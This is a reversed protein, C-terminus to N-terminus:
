RPASSRSKSTARRVGRKLLIEFADAAVLQLGVDFTDHGVLDMLLRVAPEPSVSGALIRGFLFALTPRWQPDRSREGFVAALRHGDTEAIQQAALFEQLSLGRRIRSAGM